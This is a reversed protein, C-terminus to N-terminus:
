WCIYFSAPRIIPKTGTTTTCAVETANIKCSEIATSGHWTISEVYPKYVVYAEKNEPKKNSIEFDNYEFFNRFSIVENESYKEANIYYYRKNPNKKIQKYIKKYIKDIKKKYRNYIELVMLEEADNEYIFNSDWIENRWNEVYEEM